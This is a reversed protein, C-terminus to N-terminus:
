PETASEAIWTQIYNQDAESLSSLAITFSKGDKRVITVKTGESSIIRAEIKRGSKNTFIRLPEQALEDRGKVQLSYGDLFDFIEAMLEPNRYFTTGHNGGAIEKYIHKANAEKMKRAFPRVMQVPVTTDKDGTVVMMPATIKELIDHSGMYAPSMPVLAAWIDSYAAGLHITGGGGMSHGALYIRASNVNFEKRIIGLVNLVDKESLDGLNEPDGARGGLLGGNGKGRSGYWGRENYGFPAVVIYGRKEAETTIGQYRIVQQPNSGLGHLLVLLPAPKAKKYGSPVYLAYEIDKSAEKFSYSRKQIKGLDGQGPLLGTFSALVLGCVFLVALFKSKAPPGQFRRQVRASSSFLSNGPTASKLATTMFPSRLYGLRMALIKLEKSNAKQKQLADDPPLLEKRNFIAHLMVFKFLSSNLICLRM